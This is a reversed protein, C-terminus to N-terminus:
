LLAVFFFPNSSSHTSFFPNGLASSCIISVAKKNEQLAGPLM